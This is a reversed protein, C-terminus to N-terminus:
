TLDLGATSRTARLVHPTFLQVFNEELSAADKSGDVVDRAGSLAWIAHLMEHMLFYRRLEPANDAHLYIEQREVHCCGYSGELEPEGAVDAVFVAFPLGCIDVHGRLAKM